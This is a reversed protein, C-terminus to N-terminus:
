KKGKLEKLYVKIEEIVNNLNTIRYTVKEEFDDQACGHIYDIMENQSDYFEFEDKDLTFSQPRMCGVHGDSVQWKITIKESM